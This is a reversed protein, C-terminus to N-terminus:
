IIIFVINQRAIAIIKTLVIIIAIRITPIAIIKNGQYSQKNNNNNQSKNNSNSHNNQNEDDHTYM